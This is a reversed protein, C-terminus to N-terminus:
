WTDFNFSSGAAACYNNYFQVWVYDFWSKSLADQLHYDPFPCQPAATVLFARGSPNAAASSYYSGKLERVFAAYGTAAGGEIDLDVGDLVADGFPRPWGPASGGLFMQWLIGAFRTAEADSAFGYSGAAGGLSLIVKKGRAQCAKIATGV